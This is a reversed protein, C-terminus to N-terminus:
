LRTLIESYCNISSFCKSGSIFWWLQVPCSTLCHPFLIKGTFLELTVYHKERSNPVVPLLFAFLYVFLFCPSEHVTNSKKNWHHPIQFSCSPLNIVLYPTFSSHPCVESFPGLLLLILPQCKYEASSVRWLQLFM